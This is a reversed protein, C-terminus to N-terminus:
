KRVFEAPMNDPLWGMKTLNEKMRQFCLEYAKHIQKLSHQRGLAELLRDNLSQIGMSIRTVGAAKLAELKDRKVSSPAM